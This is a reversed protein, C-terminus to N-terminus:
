LHGEHQVLGCISFSQHGSDCSQDCFDAVNLGDTSFRVNAENKVYDNVGLLQTRNLTVMLYEPLETLRYAKSTLGKKGCVECRYDHLREPLFYQALLSQLTTSKM